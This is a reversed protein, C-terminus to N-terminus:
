LLRSDSCFQRQKKLACGNHFWRGRFLVARMQLTKSTELCMLFSKSRKKGELQLKNRNLVWTKWTEIMRSCFQPLKAKTQPKAANIARCLTVKVCGSAGRKMRRQQMWSGVGSPFFLTLAPLWENREALSWLFIEMWVLGKKVLYLLSYM